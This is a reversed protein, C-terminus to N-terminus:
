GPAFMCNSCLGFRQMKWYTYIHTSRQHLRFSSFLSIHCAFTLNRWRPGPMLPTQGKIPDHFNVDQSMSCEFPSRIGWNSLWRWRTWFIKTSLWINQPIKQSAPLRAAMFNWCIRSIPWQTSYSRLSNYLIIYSESKNSIDYITKNCCGLFFVCACAEM